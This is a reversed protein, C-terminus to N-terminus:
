CNEIMKELNQWIELLIETNQTAKDFVAKGETTLSYKKGNKEVLGKEILWSFSIQLEKQTPFAYNIGDAVMSIGSMNSPETGSALVTSLFIWAVTKEHTM